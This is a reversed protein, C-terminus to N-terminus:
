RRGVDALALVALSALPFGDLAVRLARLGAALANAVLSFIVITTARSISPVRVCDTTKGNNHSNVFVPVVFRKGGIGIM